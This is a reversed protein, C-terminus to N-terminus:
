FQLLVFTVPVYCCLPEALDDECHETLTSLM